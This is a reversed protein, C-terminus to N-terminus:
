KGGTKQKILKLKDQAASAMAGAPEIKLFANYEAAADAYKGARALENGLYYHAPAYAADKAIAARLDALAGADDKVGIKCSARETRLEAADKIAIADDYTSICDQWARVVHMEHGVAALMGLGSEGMNKALPRALKLQTLSADGLKWVGLWHAYTLLFMPDSPALRVAVLFEQTAGPQDGKWASAVAANMHLSANDKHKAIAAQAVALAPDYHQEDIYLASLNVAAQEHDPKAKLAAKYSKEAGDKDNAKEALVGEYYLADANNPNAKIAHDFYAKASTLDNAELARAGKAVDDGAAPPAATGPAANPTNLLELPPTDPPPTAAGGCALALWALSGSLAIARPALTSVTNM